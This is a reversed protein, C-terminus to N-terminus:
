FILITFYVIFYYIYLHITLYTVCQLCQCLANSMLTNNEWQNVLACTWQWHKFYVTHWMALLILLNILLLEIRPVIWNTDKLVGGVFIRIVEVHTCHFVEYINQHMIVRHMIMGCLKWNTPWITWNRHERWYTNWIVIHSERIFHM